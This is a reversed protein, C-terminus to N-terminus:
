RRRSLLLESITEAERKTFFSFSLLDSYTGPSLTERMKYTRVGLGNTVTAWAPFTVPLRSSRIERKRMICIDYPEVLDTYSIAKLVDGVNVFYDVLWSFPIMEWVTGPSPGRLDLVQKAAFNFSTLKDVPILDKRRPRWRVSGWVVSKYTTHRNGRVVVALSSHFSENTAVFSRSGSALHIKRKLGGKKVLSNFERVRKEIVQTISALTKIDAILPAWGFKWNLSGSGYLQFATSAGIKLLTAAEVMESILVPVSLEYRFPNTEALLKAKLEATSGEIELFTSNSTATPASSYPRDYFIRGGQNGSITGYSREDVEQITLNTPPLTGDDRVKKDTFDETRKWLTEVSSQYYLGNSLDLYGGALSTHTKLRTRATPM